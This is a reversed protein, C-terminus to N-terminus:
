VHVAGLLRSGGLVGFIGVTPGFSAIPGLSAIVLSRCLNIMIKYPAPFVLPPTESTNWLHPARTKRATAPANNNPWNRSCKQKGQHKFKQVFNNCKIGRHRSIAFFNKSKFGVAASKPEPFTGFHCTKFQSYPSQNEGEYLNRLILLNNCAPKLDKSIPVSRNYLIAINFLLFINSSSCGKRLFKSVFYNLSLKQFRDLNYEM